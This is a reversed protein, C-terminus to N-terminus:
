ARRAPARARLQPLRLRHGQDRRGPVAKRRGARAAERRLAQDRRRGDRLRARGARQRAPTARAALAASWTSCRRGSTSSPRPTHAAELAAHRPPTPRRSSGAEMRGRQLVAAAARVSPLVFVMVGILLILFQMPIKFLGNFLLGLRSETVSRGSLYRQVQSQDTGFYALALFFGGTIGSWFTYRSDLDFSFDVANMKGLAGAIHSPTRRLLGAAAASAALWVFALAMGAWCSWWRHKQTQSVARPAARSRTSSSWGARHAVITLNSRGASCRAVPHDGPRLPHHRRGARAPCSCSPRWSAPRSTSASRWSSTPPSVRLRYYRPVFVASSSWWRSRCGSTSSCSACATKTPRGPRRCSPSPAPRPPWSPCASPTGATRTAAAWIATRAPRDRAHALRRLGRHRRPHRRAGDLRVPDDSYKPQGSRSPLDRTPVSGLMALSHPGQRPRPRCLGLFYDLPGSTHAPPWNRVAHITTAIQRSQVGGPFRRTALAVSSPRWSPVNRVRAGSWGRPPM